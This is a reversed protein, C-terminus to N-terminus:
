FSIIDVKSFSRPVVIKSGRFLLKNENGALFLKNNWSIRKKLELIYYFLLKTGTGM